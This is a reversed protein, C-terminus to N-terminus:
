YPRPAAPVGPPRPEAHGRWRAPQLRARQAAEPVGAVAQGAAVQMLGQELVQQEATLHADPLYEVALAAAQAPAPVLSAAAFRAPASLGAAQSPARAEAETM